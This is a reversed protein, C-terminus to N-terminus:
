TIKKKTGPREVSLASQIPSHQQQLSKPLFSPRIYPLGLAMPLWLGNIMNSMKLGQYAQRNEPTRGEWILNNLFMIKTAPDTLKRDLDVQVGIIFDWPTKISKLKLSLSSAGGSGVSLPILYDWTHLACLHVQELCSSPLPAQEIGTSFNGQSFFQDYNTLQTPTTKYYQKNVIINLRKRAWVQCEDRFPAKWQVFLTPFLPNAYTTGLRPSNFPAVSVGQFLSPGPPM